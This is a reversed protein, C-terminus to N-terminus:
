THLFNVSKRDEERAEGGQDQGLVLHVYDAGVVLIGEGSEHIEAITSRITHDEEKGASEWARGQQM